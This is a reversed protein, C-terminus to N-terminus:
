SRGGAALREDLRWRPPTFRLVAATMLAGAAMAMFVFPPLIMRYGYNSPMTAMLIAVHTIIFAHMPWAIITRLPKFVIVAAFYGLSTLMLEPHITGTGMLHVMGLSFGAKTAYNKMSAVPHDIFMRVLIQAANFLTGDFGKFYMKDDVPMNYAVFTAGQGSTLLVARGSMLYNRLTIPAVTAMWATVLVVADIAGRLLTGARWAGYAIGALALPLVLMMSPRTWSALAGAIGAAILDRKRGHDHYNMLFLVTAAVLVFYLNESFLTVTYYRVFDAQELLLLWVLGGLAGIPGFLRRGIAHAVLTAAALLLFNVLVVGALSEGTVSHVLAVFYAYGPYLSFPQGRGIVGDQTMMIGNLVVDRASMEYNLWDDGGSMTWVHDVLHRSKWVGQALLLGLVIPIVPVVNRPQRRVGTWLSTAVLVLVIAHLILTTTATAILRARSVPTDFPTIPADLLPGGKGPASELVLLGPTDAPKQYRVEITHSGPPLVLDLARSQGIGSVQAVSNGDLLVEARGNVSVAGAVTQREDVTLHGTWQVSFPLTAERYVGTNYHRNNFFHVPFETDALSLTRDIRTAGLGPFDISREFPEAFSENAYYRGLWGTHPTVLGVAVKIAILLAVMAVRAGSVPAAERRVWLWTGVILTLVVIGTQGIPIGSLPLNPAGPALLYAVALAVLWGISIRSRMLSGISVGRL